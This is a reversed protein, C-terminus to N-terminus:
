RVLRADKGTRSRSAPTEPQRLATGLWVSLAPAVIAGAALSFWNYAADYPIIGTVAIGLLLTAELYALTGLGAPFVGHNRCLRGLAVLGGALVAFGFAEPWQTLAQIGEITRGAAVMSAAPRAQWGTQRWYQAAALFTLNALISFIGSLSLATVLIQSAPRGPGARNRVALGAIILALYAAPLITDRAIIDWVIRHQHAFYAAYFTAQDALPGAGTARYHPGSGLLGAADLLYLVTGALFASGAVYGAARGTWSWARVPDFAARDAPM